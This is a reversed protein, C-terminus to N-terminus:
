EDPNTQEQMPGFGRTVEGTNWYEVYKYSNSSAVYDPTACEGESLEESCCTPTEGKTRKGYHVKLGDPNCWTSM